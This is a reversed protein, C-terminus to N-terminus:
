NNLHTDANDKKELPIKIFVSFGNGAATKFSIEAKGQYRTELQRRVLKLGLGNSEDGNIKNKGPNDDSVELELSDKTKEAKVLVTGVRKHPSIGHKIANEVLPQLTFAPILCSLTDSDIKSKIILREGLRMKELELYNEVFKLEDELRILNTASESKEQLVFRLMESLKELATEAKQPEYRILAMLSHLTNFLFHPNLQARLASLQSQAYLAEAQAARTEALTARQEELRLNNVTQLLYIVCAITAYIMVGSFIQWQLAYGTFWVLTWVGRQLATYGSLFFLVSGYWLFSFALASCIHVPFFYWRHRLSWVFKNFFLVLGIGLFAAAPVNCLMAVLARWINEFGQGLFVAVYSLGYPVWAAFYILWQRASLKM